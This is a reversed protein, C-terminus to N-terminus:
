IHARTPQGRGGELQRLLAAAQAYAADAAAEVEVTKASRMTPAQALMTAAGASPKTTEAADDAPPPQIGGEASISAAVSAEAAAATMPQHPRM